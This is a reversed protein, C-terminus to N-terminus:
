NIGWKPPYFYKIKSDSPKYRSKIRKRNSKLEPHKVRTYKDVECFLGQCDIAHLKRGWLNEFKLGLRQFEKDQNEVMYMIIDSNSMGDTNRFCKKIGRIAGPGAVTFDNESFCFM